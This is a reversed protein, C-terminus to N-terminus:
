VHREAEEILLDLYHRAKRLDEISGKAQWRTVYKVVNGEAFGLDNAFIYEIPQIAMKKYHDGGIQIDLARDCQPETAPKKM